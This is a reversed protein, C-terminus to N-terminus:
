QKLLKKYFKGQQNSFRALYMGSNLEILSFTRDSPNVVKTAVRRGKLDFIDVVVPQAEFDTCVSYSGNRSPNPFVLMESAGCQQSNGLSDEESDTSDEEESIDEIEPPAETTSGNGEFVTLFTNATVDTITDVIGSLWTVKVYDIESADGLGFFEYSSNQGLYGEGCITYRYQVKGDAFLEIRSGVGDRNSM